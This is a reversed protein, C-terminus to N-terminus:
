PFNAGVKFYIGHDQLTEDQPSRVDSLSDGWYLDAALWSRYRYRLGIGVGLLSKQPFDNKANTRDSASWGYGADFFPALQVLHGREDDRFVPVRVEVSGTVAQDRVLENERYGRVSSVGGVGIQEMPMLPETALQLDSRVLLEVGYLREFRQAARIQTLFSTFSRDPEGPPNISADLIPLGTSVLQRVAFVRTRARHVWEGGIRLVALTSQGSSNAGSGPYSIGEHFLDTQSRRWEGILAARVEDTRTRWLPQLVGVGATFVESVVNDDEFPSEVVEGDSYRVRAEVETDYRNLPVGYRGEADVLGEAFRVDGSLEDGVQLPGPLAADVRGAQEGLSPPVDNSWELGLRLPFAEEVDLRLVSEGRQESPELRASVRRLRDDQQFIELRRELDQVRVPPGAAAQVRSQFYSPRFWRAGDVQVAALRGEVIRLLVVGDTMEQDPLVAGSSVYGAEIYHRTVADRAARLESSAIERGSWPATVAALQADDFVTNGEFRFGRVFVRAGAPPPGTPSPPPIPPLVLEPAPEEGVRPQRLEFEERPTQIVPQASAATAALASASAAALLAAALFLLRRSRAPTV